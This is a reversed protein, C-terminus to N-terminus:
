KLADYLDRYAQLVDPHADLWFDGGVYSHFYSLFLPKNTQAWTIFSRIWAAGKSPPDESRVGLEAIGIPVKKDQCWATTLQLRQSVPEFNGQPYVDVGVFDCHGDGPWYLQPDRGKHHHFTPEMLIIGARIRGRDNKYTTAIDYVRRSAAAFSAPSFSDNEPEHFYCVFLHDRHEVPVSHFLAKLQSDLTGSHVQDPPAKLSWVSTRKGVDCAAASTAFSGPLRGDYSRRMDLIDGLKQELHEFEGLASRGDRSSACAGILTRRTTPSPDHSTTPLMGLPTTSGGTSSSGCGALELSILGTGIILGSMAVSHHVFDRRRM